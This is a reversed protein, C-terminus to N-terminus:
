FGAIFHIWLLLTKQHKGWYRTTCFPFWPAPVFDHAYLHTGRRVFGTNFSDLENQTCKSTRDFAYSVRSRTNNVSENQEHTNNLEDDRELVLM